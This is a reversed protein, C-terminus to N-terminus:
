DRAQSEDYSDLLHEIYAIVLARACKRFTQYTGIEREDVDEPAYKSAAVPVWESLTYAPLYRPGAITDVKVASPSVSLLGVMVGPEDGDALQKLIQIGPKVIGAARCYDAILDAVAQGDWKRLAQEHAEDRTTLNMAEEKPEGNPEILGADMLSIYLDKMRGM